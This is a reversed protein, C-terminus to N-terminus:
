GKCWYPAVHVDVDIQVGYEDYPMVDYFGAIMLEKVRTAAWEGKERRAQAVVEDHVFNIPHIGQPVGEWEMRAAVAYIIDAATGQIPANKAANELHWQEVGDDFKFYRKTGAATLTYGRKLSAAVNREAFAFLNPYQKQIGEIIKAALARPVGNKKEMGGATLGYSIGLLGAKCQKRQADTVEEVSQLGFVLLALEKYLDKGSNLDRRMREDNSLGAAIVLEQAHFDATLIIHEEDAIFCQRVTKTSPFNQFNPKESSTRGTDTLGINITGRLKGDADIMALLKEGYRSTFTSLEAYKEHLHLATRQEETLDARKLAEARHLADCSPMVLGMGAYARRVQTPSNLDIPGDELKATGPNPHEKRWQAMMRQKYAGWVDNHRTPVEAWEERLHQEYAAKEQEYTRKADAAVRYVSARYQQEYADLRAMLQAQIREKSEEVSDLYDRWADTDVRMGRLEVEAIPVMAGFRLKASRLLNEQQIEDLQKEAVLWTVAVDLAAYRVQREDPRWGTTDTVETFTEREEKDLEVNLYRKAVVKLSLGEKLWVMKSPYLGATLLQEALQTDYIDTWKPVDYHARLLRYDYNLNHGIITHRPLEDWLPQLQEPTFATLNVVWVQEADGVQFLLPIATRPHKGNAETDLAVEDQEALWLRLIELEDGEEVTYIGGTIHTGITPLYLHQM